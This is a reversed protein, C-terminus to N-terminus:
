DFVAVTQRSVAVVEGQEDWILAESHGYGQSAQLTKAHYAFWADPRVPEHPHIFELNWCVSSAPAVRDLQQILTPPWADILAILHADTFTAPSEVFRMWGGFQSDTGGAFPMGGLLMRMDIHQMFAPTVNPIQPIRQGKDPNGLNHTATAAVEIRSDRDLGFTAQVLVATQEDQIARALVQSMAKGERLVEVEIRFPTDAYLPGVFSTSMSRLVRSDDIERRMAAYLMAASLGGFATRGQGWNEPFSLETDADAARSAALLEDIHM